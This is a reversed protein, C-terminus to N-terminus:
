SEEKSERGKATYLGPFPLARPVRRPVMQHVWNLEVVDHILLRKLGHADVELAAAGVLNRIAAQGDHAFGPEVQANLGPVFAGSNGLLDDRNREHVNVANFVD